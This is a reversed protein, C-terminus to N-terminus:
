EDITNRIALISKLLIRHFRFSFLLSTKIQMARRLYDKAQGFLGASNAMSATLLLCSARFSDLYPEYIKLLIPDGEIQAVVYNVKQVYGELTYTTISRGKHHVIGSNIRNIRGMPYRALVRMWFEWDEIGQLVEATDFRYERYVEQSIFGGICSMFNGKAIAKVRNKLSPFEYQYVPQGVENILEYLNHFVHLGPNQRAFSHADALNGPYMIDDSDLFSVFKGRAADMGSNRSVAREYNKDHRIYRIRGADALPQLVEATRDTSCNDVVIIELDQFTQGFVSTLTKLILDARNFTPIIVSFYPRPTM